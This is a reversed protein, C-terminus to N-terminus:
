TEGRMPAARNSQVVVPRSFAVGSAARLFKAEFGDACLDSKSAFVVRATLVFSINQVALGLEELRKAALEDHPAQSRLYERIAKKVNDGNHLFSLPPLVTEGSPGVPAYTRGGAFIAAGRGDSCTGGGGGGEVERM